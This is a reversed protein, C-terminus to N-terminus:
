QHTHVVLKAKATTGSTFYFLLAQNAPTPGDPRFDVSSQDAARYNTWGAVDEGVVIRGFTGPLDTFKGTEEPAAVVLKVHGRTLRDLLDDRTLLTTSPILIAGLKIAALMVEWLAPVNGLMLLIPDGRGVGQSRLFSAVQHSRRS